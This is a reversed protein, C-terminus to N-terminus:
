IDWYSILQVDAERLLERFPESKLYELEAHRDCSGPKERDAEATGPHCFMESRIGPRRLLELRSAQDAERMLQRLDLVRDPGSLSRAALRTRLRRALRLRAWRSLAAKPRLPDRRPSDEITYRVRGIGKRVALDVVTDAVGPLQHLHKHSDLHSVEVGGTRVRDIQAGLEAAVESLNLRRLFARAALTWKPLFTGDARILSPCRTLPRGECLNLHVGFSVSRGPRVRPLAFETGPMNAMVSTSTLVGADIAELIGKTIEITEGFDDAHIILLSTLAAGAVPVV